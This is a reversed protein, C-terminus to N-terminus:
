QRIFSQTISSFYVSYSRILHQDSFFFLLFFVRLLVVFHPLSRSINIRHCRIHINKKGIWPKSFRAVNCLAVRTPRFCIPTPQFNWCRNSMNALPGQAHHYQSMVGVEIDISPLCKQLSSRQKSELYSQMFLLCRCKDSKSHCDLNGFTYLLHLLCKKASWWIIDNAPYFKLLMRSIVRIPPLSNQLIYVRRMLYFVALVSFDLIRISLWKIAIYADFLNCVDSANYWVINYLMRCLMWSGFISRAMWIAFSSNYLLVQRYRGGLPISRQRSSSM